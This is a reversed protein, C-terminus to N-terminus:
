SKEGLLIELYDDYWDEIDNKRPNKVLFMVDFEDGYVRWERDCNEPAVEWLGQREESKPNIDGIILKTVICQTDKKLVDSNPDEEDQLIDQNIKVISGPRMKEILTDFDFDLQWRNPRKNVSSAGLYV